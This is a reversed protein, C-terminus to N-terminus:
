KKLRWKNHCKCKVVKARNEDSYKVTRRFPSMLDFPCFRNRSIRRKDWEYWPDLTIEGHGDVPTGDSDVNMCLINVTVRKARAM